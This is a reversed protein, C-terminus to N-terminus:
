HSSDGEKWHPKSGGSQYKVGDSHILGSVHYGPLVEGAICQPGQIAVGFSTLAEKVSTPFSASHAVFRLSPISPFDGHRYSAPM